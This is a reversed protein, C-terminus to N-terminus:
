NRRPKMGPKLNGWINKQDLLYNFSTLFASSAMYSNSSTSFEASKMELRPMTLKQDEFPLVLASLFGVQDFGCFIHADDQQFRRVRTLGGLSGSSENRHLVGFDAMRWPLAKYSVESHAFIKCHGACNMPKLSFLEKEVEFTFMNEKYHDWHGSTKWLDSKYVNPTIVEDYGRKRYESKMLDLMTNYIRTGHPLFFTSGPSVEDFFFLKQDTGIKRHNRIAAEALFTKYETLLKNNPFAIGSIRQVVEANRDGLWHASSNQPDNTICLM